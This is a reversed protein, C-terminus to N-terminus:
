GGGVFHVIEIIDNEKLQTASFVSRDVVKRNLELVISKKKLQFLEILGDLTTGKPVERKAGNVCVMIDKM